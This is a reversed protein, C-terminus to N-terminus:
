ARAQYNELARGKIRIVGVIGTVDGSAEALNIYGTAALEVGGAVGNTGNDTDNKSHFSGATAGSKGDILTDNSTAADAAVGLDLTSAGASPTTILLVAHEIWAKKGWPNPIARIVGAGDGADFPVEYWGEYFTGTLETAM